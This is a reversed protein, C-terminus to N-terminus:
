RVDGALLATMQPDDIQQLANQAAQAATEGLDDNATSDEDPM